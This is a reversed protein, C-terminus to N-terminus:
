FGEGSLLDGYERGGSSERDEHYLAKSKYGGVLYDLYTATELVAGNWYVHGTVV